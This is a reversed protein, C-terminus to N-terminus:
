VDTMESEIDTDVSVAHISPREFAIADADTAILALLQPPSEWDITEPSIGLVDELSEPPIAVRVTGGEEVLSRADPTSRGDVATRGALGILTGPKNTTRRYHLAKATDLGADELIPGISAYISGGRERLPVIGAAQLHITEVTMAEFSPNRPRQITTTADM